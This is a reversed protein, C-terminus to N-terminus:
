ARGIHFTAELSGSNDDHYGPAGHFSFADVFGLYLRTAGAPV